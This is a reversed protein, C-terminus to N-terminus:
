PLEARAVGAGPVDRNGGDGHMEPLKTGYSPGRWNQQHNNIFAFEFPPPTKARVPAQRHRKRQYFFVLVSVAILVSAGVAVGVGIPVAPNSKSDQQPKGTPSGTPTGAATNAPPSPPHSASTSPAMPSSETATESPPAPDPTATTDVPPQGLSPQVPDPATTLSPTSQDGTSDGPSDGTTTPSEEASRTVSSPDPKSGATAFPDMIDLRWDTGGSLGRVSRPSSWMGSLEFYSGPAECTNGPPGGGCYWLRHTDDNPCRYVGLWQDDQGPDRCFRPCGPDEWAPDRCAGRYYFHYGGMGQTACLGNILCLDGSKCCLDAQGCSAAVAPSSGNPLRCRGPDSLVVVFLFFLLFPLFFHHFHAMTMIPAPTSRTTHHAPIARHLGSAVMGDLLLLRSLSPTRFTPSPDSCSNEPPHNGVLPRFVLHSPLRAASAACRAEGSRGPLSSVGHLSCVNGSTEDAGTCCLGTEQTDGNLTALSLDLDSDPTQVTRKPTQRRWGVPVPWHM